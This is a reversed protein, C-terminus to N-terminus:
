QIATFDEDLRELATDIRARSDTIWAAHGDLRERATGVMRTMEDPQPGGSTVSGEDRDKSRRSRCRPAIVLHQVPHLAWMGVGVLNWSVRETAAAVLHQHREEYITRRLAVALHPTM